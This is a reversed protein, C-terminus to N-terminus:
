IFLTVILSTTDDGGTMSLVKARIFKGMIFQYLAGSQTVASGAITALADSSAVVGTPSTGQVNAVVQYRSDDNVNAVQLVVTAATPVTGSWKAEAFLSRSNDDEDPSFVLSYPASATGASVLDPTEFSQVVLNGSDPTSSVNGSTLAYSITGTGEASNYDVATVTTPDVNFVGGGTQTGQVGMKAGVQPLVLNSPGGGSKLSVSLTAVDSALSVATVQFLFAETQTSRSGFLYQPQSATQLRAVKKYPPGFASNSYLAM